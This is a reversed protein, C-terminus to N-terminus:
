SVAKGSAGAELYREWDTNRVRVRNSLRTVRLRGRSIELELFRRCVQAETALEELTWLRRRICESLDGEPAVSSKTNPKM